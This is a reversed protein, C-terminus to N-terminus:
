SKTYLAVVMTCCVYTIIFAAGRVADCLIDYNLCVEIVEKRFQILAEDANSVTTHIYMAGDRIPCADTQQHRAHWDIVAPPPAHVGLYFIM